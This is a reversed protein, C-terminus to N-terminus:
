AIRRKTKLIEDIALMANAVAYNRDSHKVEPPTHELFIQGLLSKLLTACQKEKKSEKNKM